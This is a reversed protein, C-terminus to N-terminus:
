YWQDPMGNEAESANKEDLKEDNKAEEVENESKVEEETEDERRSVPPNPLPKDPCELNDEIKAVPPAKKQNFAYIVILVLVSTM